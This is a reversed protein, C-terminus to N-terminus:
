RSKRTTRCRLPKWRALLLFCSVWRMSLCARKFGMGAVRDLEVDPMDDLTAPRGLARSLETLWVRTNIEYTLPHTPWAKM